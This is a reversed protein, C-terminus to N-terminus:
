PTRRLYEYGGAFNKASYGWERLILTVAASSVGNESIVFITQNKTINEKKLEAEVSKEPLGQTNFFKKWSIKKFPVTSTELGSFDNAVERVDLILNETGLAGARSSNMQLSKLRARSPPAKQDLAAAKFEEPTAILQAQLISKWAPKNEPGSEARPITARVQSWSAFQVNKVGLYKLMWAVRGEEGQGQLASGVVLVPTEPDVGWLSLRRALTTFDDQLFGRYGPKLQSFDQWQVLVAGPTHSVSFDLPTRADLIVPKLKLFSQFSNENGEAVAQGQNTVKTPANQCSIIGACVSLVLFIKAWFTM